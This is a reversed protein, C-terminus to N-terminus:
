EAGVVKRSLLEPITNNSGGPGNSSGVVAITSGVGSYLSVQAALGAVGPGPDLGAGGDAFLVLGAGNGGMGAWPSTEIGNMATALTTRATVYATVVAQDALIGGNLTLNNSDAVTIAGDWNTDVEILAAGPSTAVAGKIASNIWHQLDSEASSAAKILTSKRAKEQAGIYGPIAIAALIGIIAVVILLEILTFGKKNRLNKFM